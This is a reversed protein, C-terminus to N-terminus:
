EDVHSKVDKMITQVNEAFTELEEASPKQGESLKQKFQEFLWDERTGHPFEFFEREFHPLEGPGFYGKDRM